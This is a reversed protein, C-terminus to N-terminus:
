TKFLISVKSEGKYRDCLCPGLSALLKELNRYMYRLAFRLSAGKRVIKAEGLSLASASLYGYDTIEQRCWCFSM